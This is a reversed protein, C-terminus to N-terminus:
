AVAEPNVATRPGLFPTLLKQLLPNAFFQWQKSNVYEHCLSRNQTLLFSPFGKTSKVQGSNRPGCFAKSFKRM